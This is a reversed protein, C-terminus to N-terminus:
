TKRGLVFVGEDVMPGIRFKDGAIAEPGHRFAWGGAPTDGSGDPDSVIGDLTVFQIVTVSM